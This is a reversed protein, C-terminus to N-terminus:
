KSERGLWWAWLIFIAQVPFRIWLGIEPGIDSFMAANQLMYVHVPLFAILMAITTWSAIKRTKKFLILIGVAIEVIGSLYILLLPFPFYPPMIRMYFDPQIFHMVGAGVYSVAFLYLFIKKVLSM